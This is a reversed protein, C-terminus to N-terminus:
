WGARSREIVVLSDVQEVFRWDPSSNSRFLEDVLKVPGWDPQTWGGPFLAADHFGVIGGPAVFRHWQDWDQRVGSDSHDGDIFLFDIPGNWEKVAENSFREMWVVSGNRCREVANHAARRTANISQFRSLHFPDILLLKGNPAMAERLAVASAGEAVGIEVLNTKGAAWKKLARHEEPTHQGAIPRVGLWAFVPHQLWGRVGGTPTSDPRRLMVKTALTEGNVDGRRKPFAEV